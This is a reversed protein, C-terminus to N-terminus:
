ILWSAGFPTREDRNTEDPRVAVQRGQGPRAPTKDFILVKLFRRTEGDRSSSQGLGNSQTM